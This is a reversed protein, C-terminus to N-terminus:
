VVRGTLGSKADGRETESLKLRVVVYFPLFSPGRSQRPVLRGTVPSSEEGPCPSDTGGFSGRPKRLRGWEGSPTPRIGEYHEEVFSSVGWRLGERRPLFKSM